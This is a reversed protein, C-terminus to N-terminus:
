LLFGMYIGILLVTYALMIKWHIKITSMVTVRVKLAYNFSVDPFYYYVGNPVNKITKIFFTM